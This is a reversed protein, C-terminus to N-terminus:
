LHDVAGCGRIVRLQGAVPRRPTAAVPFWRQVPVTLPQDRTLAAAAREAPVQQQVGVGFWLVRVFPLLPDGRGALRYARFREGDVRSAILRVIEDHQVEHVSVTGPLM